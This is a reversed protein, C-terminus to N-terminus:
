GKLRDGALRRDGTRCLTPGLATLEQPSILSLRDGIVGVKEGLIMALKKQLPISKKVFLIL